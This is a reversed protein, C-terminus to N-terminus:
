EKRIGKGEFWRTICCADKRFFRLREDGVKKKKKANHEDGDTSMHKVPHSGHFVVALTPHHGHCRVGISM